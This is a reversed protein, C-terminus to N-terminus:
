GFLFAGVVCAYGLDTFGVTVNGIRSGGFAAVIFFVFALLLFVERTAIHM